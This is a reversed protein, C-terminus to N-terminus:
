SYVIKQTREYEKRLVRAPIKDLVGLLLATSAVGYEPRGLFWYADRLVPVSDIAPGISPDHLGASQILGVAIVGVLSNLVAFNTIANGWRGYKIDIYDFKLRERLTPKIKKIWKPAQMGIDQGTLRKLIEYGTETDEYSSLIDRVLFYRLSLRNPKIDSLHEKFGMLRGLASDITRTDAPAVSCADLLAIDDKFRKYEITFARFLAVLSREQRTYQSSEVSPHMEDYIEKFPRSKKRVVREGSSNEFQKREENFMIKGQLYQVTERVVAKCEERCKDSIDAPFERVRYFLESLSINFLLNFGSLSVRGPAVGSAEKRKAFAQHRQPM